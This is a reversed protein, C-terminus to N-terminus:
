KLPNNILWQRLMEFATISARQINNDRDKGFNYHKSLVEKPTAVAIWITGVPNKETGGDPGAIGTTAVAFDTNLLKRVGTAMQEVVERSVVTYKDISEQSIGLVNEKVETSYSVVTGKYIASCGPISTIMKAIAGGTCSEASSLTQRRSKLIDIIVKSIPENDYGFIYEAIISKLKEVQNDLSEQLFKEDPHRADLRLCVIGFQPLYALSMFDPLADEWDKIKNALFSEGIGTTMIVRRGYPTPKFHRKLLSLIETKFVSKMEFPVGPMSIYVTKNKEFWMCPATGYPNPIYTCAKPIYAQQRNNETMPYNRLKFIQKVNNLADENLEMETDFFKCLTSKTIDDTTPGLGGTMIVIDADSCATLADIIDKEGDGVTLVSVVEFGNVNLQEGIWSANTNVVQGLLLEDGISIIKAKIFDNEKM